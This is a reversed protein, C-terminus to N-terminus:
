VTVSAKKIPFSFVSGKGVESKVVIEGGNREVIGQLSNVWVSGKESCHRKNFIKPRILRLYNRWRNLRFVLVPIRLLYKLIIM